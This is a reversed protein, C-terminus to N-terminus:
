YTINVYGDEARVLLPHYGYILSINGTVNGLTYEYMDVSRGSVLVRFYITNNYIRIEKVTNPIYATIKVSAPKGQVYVFNATDKLKGLTNKAYEVNLDETSKSVTTKSYLWVVALLLLTFAILVTYEVAAQARSM